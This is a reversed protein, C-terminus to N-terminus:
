VHWRVNYDYGCECEFEGQDWEEVRGDVGEYGADDDEAVQSAESAGDDGEAGGATGRLRWEAGGGFNKAAACNAEPTHICM